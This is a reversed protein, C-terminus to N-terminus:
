YYESLVGFHARDRQVREELRELRLNALLRQV